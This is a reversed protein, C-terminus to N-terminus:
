FLFMYFCWSCYCQKKQPFCLWISAQQAVLLAVVLEWSLTVVVGHPELFRLGSTPPPRPTTTRSCTPSASSLAINPLVEAFWGRAQARLLIDYFFLDLPRGDHPGLGHGPRARPPLRRPPLVTDWSPPPVPLTAARIPCSTPRAPSM